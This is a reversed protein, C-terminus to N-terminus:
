IYPLRNQHHIEKTQNVIRCTSKKLIKSVGLPNEGTFIAEYTVQRLTGFLVGSSVHKQVWEVCTNEKKIGNGRSKYEGVTLINVSDFNM